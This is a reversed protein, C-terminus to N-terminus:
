FVINLGLSVSKMLPYGMSLNEAELSNIKDWIFLNTGNAYVRISNVKKLFGVQPVTYGVELSRLKIFSGDKM